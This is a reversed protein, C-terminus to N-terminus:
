VDDPQYKALCGITLRTPENVNVVHVIIRNHAPNRKHGPGVHEFLISIQIETETEVTESIAIKGRIRREGVKSSCAM